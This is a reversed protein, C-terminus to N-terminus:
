GTYDRWTLPTAAQQAKINGKLIPLREYVKQLLIESKQEKFANYDAGRNHEDGARNCTDAWQTIEDYHMYCLISLSEAYEPNNKDQTYFLTYNAPWEAPQYSMAAWADNTANWYLNHHQMPVTGPTLVLN